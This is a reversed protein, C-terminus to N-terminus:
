SRGRVPYPRELAADRGGDPGRHGYALLSSGFPVPLNHMLAYELRTLQHLMANIPRPPVAAPTPVVPRAKEILHQGLKAAATWHFFYEMHDLKLGSASAIRKLTGKTYRTRHQNIVDHSTWLARFAPVTLLLLGGIQLLELAHLLADAPQDLHEIVDLMLILSFLHGPRYSTDFPGVHIRSNIAPDDTLLTTDPEVGEVMGFEELQSFFVGGGCGVDLV